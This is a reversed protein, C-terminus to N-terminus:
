PVNLHFIWPGGELELSPDNYSPDPRVTVTWAGHSNRLLDIWHITKGVDEELGRGDYGAPSEAVALYDFDRSKWLAPCHQRRNFCDKMALTGTFGAQQLKYTSGGTEVEVDADPGAGRLTVRVGSPTIALGDLSVTWGDTIASQDDPHLVVGPAVPVSFHFTYPGLQMQLYAQRTAMSTLGAFAVLVARSSNRVDSMSSSAYRYDLSHGQDDTLTPAQDLIQEMSVATAGSVTYGVFTTDADAYVREVSVTVGGITQSLNLTTEMRHSTIQPATYNFLQDILPRDAYAAGGLALLISSALLACGVAVWHRRPRSGVPLPRSRSRLVRAHIAPWLDPAVPVSREATETLAQRVVHHKM